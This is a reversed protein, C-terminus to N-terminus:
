TSLFVTHSMKATVSMKTTMTKASAVSSIFIYLNNETTAFEVQFAVAYVYGEGLNIHIINNKGNNNNNIIDHALLARRM